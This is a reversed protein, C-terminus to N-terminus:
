KILTGKSACVPPVFHRQAPRPPTAHRAPRLPTARPAARLPMRRPPRRAGVHHVDSGRQSGFEPKFNSREDRCLFATVHQRNLSFPPPTRRSAEAIIASCGLM